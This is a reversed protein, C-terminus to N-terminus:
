DHSHVNTPERHDFLQWETNQRLHLHNKVKEIEHHRKDSLRVLLHDFGFYVVRARYSEALSLPKSHVCQITKVTHM